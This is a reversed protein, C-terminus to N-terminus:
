IIDDDNQGVKLTVVGCDIFDSLVVCLVTPSMRSVSSAGNSCLILVNIPIM